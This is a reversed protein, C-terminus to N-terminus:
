LFPGFLRDRSHRNGAFLFDAETKSVSTYDKFCQHIGKITHVGITGSVENLVSMYKLNLVQKVVKSFQPRYAYFLTYRYSDTYELGHYFGYYFVSNCKVNMLQVFIENFNITMKSLLALLCRTWVARM